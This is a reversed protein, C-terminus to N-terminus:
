FNSDPETILCLNLMSDKKTKEEEEHYLVNFSVAHNLSYDFIKKNM